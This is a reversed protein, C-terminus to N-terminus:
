SNEFLFEKIVNIGEAIGEYWKPDTYGPNTAVTYLEEEDMEGFKIDDLDTGVFGGKIKRIADAMESPLFRDTYSVATDDGSEDAKFTTLIASESTVTGVENEVICRYQYSNNLKSAIIYYISSNANDIQQWTNGEDTSYEWQYSLDGGNAAIAFFTSVGYAASISRPQTTIEPLIRVFVIANNSIVDGLSNQICCRFQIQDQERTVTATYTNENGNSAVNTWTRGNDVSAQWQYQLDGGTANISFTVSDGDNITVSSINKTIVPANLITLTVIDSVIGDSSPNSVICRFQYGDYTESATFSNTSTKSSANTSPANKWTTGGNKSYQWQYSIQEGSAEISFSVNSGVTASLSVPHRTIVPPSPPTYVKLTVIPSYVTLYDNFVKCRYEWGDHETSITTGYSDQTAESINGWKDDHNKNAQWQYQLDDGTAEVTLRVDTGVLDEIVYPTKPSVIIIPNFVALTVTKTKIKTNNLINGILCRYRNGSMSLDAIVSYVAANGNEPVNTWASEGNPLVQWQYSSADGSITFSFTAVEGAGIALSKPQSAVSPMVIVSLQGEATTIYGATNGICCRYWYGDFEEKATFTYEVTDSEAIHSHEAVGDELPQGNEDSWHWTQRDDTSVEWFYDLDDGSVEFSFTVSTGNEAIQDTLDAVIEVSDLVTLEAADSFVDGAVNSVVCRFYKGSHEKNVKLLYFSDNGNEEIDTWLDGDSSIQWQYDLYQGIASVSFTANSDTVVTVSKPSSTITPLGIVELITEASNITGVGNTVVCRYYTGNSSDSVTIVREIIQNTAIGNLVGSAGQIDRWMNGDAVLFKGVQWQYNLDEGSVKLSLTETKGIATVIKESLDTTIVPPNIVTLTAAASYVEGAPNSVKCRYQRGNNQKIAIFSYDAANSNIVDSWTEGNDTSYQWLYSLEDGIANVSFIATSETATNLSKPHTQIEPSAIVETFVVSNTSIAPRTKNTRLKKIFYYPTNKKCALNDFVVDLGNESNTVYYYEHAISEEPPWVNPDCLEDLLYVDIDVIDTSLFGFHIVIKTFDAHDNYIVIGSARADIGSTWTGKGEQPNPLWYNNSRQWTYVGDSDGDYQHFAGLSTTVWERERTVVSMANVMGREISIYPM